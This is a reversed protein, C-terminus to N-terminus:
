AHTNRIRNIISPIEQICYSIEKDTTYVGLSFRVASEIDEKGLSMARLVHSKEASKSLCASGASAYIGKLDLNATLSTSNVGEFSLNVTNSLRKEPHGNLRIGTTKQCLGNYLKDRLQRQQNQLKFNSQAIETAKAFGVVGPINVTGARLDREHHGGHMNPLIGTSKRIYLAGIGKPGHIKHSSISLMDVGLEDIDIPIKGFAQVADTHFYTRNGTKPKRNENVHSIIEAIEKIPQITGVENNAHMISVLITHKTIAKEVDSPDVMGYRDVPLYTVRFGQTELFRCTSLVALHEVSSTIIHNGKEKNKFSFGKIALNDSETGGSTFIIDVPEVGLADGIIERAHELASHAARGKAHLSASNGYEEELFLMMEELVKEHIRTSSNNDLYISIKPKV